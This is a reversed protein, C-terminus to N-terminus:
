VRKSVKLEGRGVRAHTTSAINAHFIIDHWSISWDEERCWSFVVRECINAAQLNESFRRSILTELDRPRDPARSQLVPYRPDLVKPGRDVSMLEHNSGKFCPNAYPVQEHSVRERRSRIRCLTNQDRENGAGSFRSVNHRTLRSLFWPPISKGSLDGAAIGRRGNTLTDVPRAALREATIPRDDTTAVCTVRPEDGQM